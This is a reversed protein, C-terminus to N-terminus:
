LAFERAREYGPLVPAAADFASRWAVIGGTKIGVRCQGAAGDTFIAAIRGGEKLQDLVAEPVMEVAGGFTIVDYPGHKAAGGSLAGAVICANDISAATLNSEAETALDEDEEVAIVAEAMHAIVATSYGLGAGLELVLENKGINLVDLTKALVRPDMVVRNGGLFIHEGAYAVERLDSPVFDERPVTLMAHIIPFKTVDSPRIQCDVM